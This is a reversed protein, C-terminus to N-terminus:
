LECRPGTIKCCLSLGGTVQKVCYLLLGKFCKREQKEFGNISWGTHRRWKERQQIKELRTSLTSKAPQSVAGTKAPTSTYGLLQGTILKLCSFTNGAAAQTELAVVVGVLWGNRVHPDCFSRHGSHGESRTAPKM